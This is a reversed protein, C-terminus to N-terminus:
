SIAVTDRLRLTKYNFLLIKQTSVNHLKEKFTVSLNFIQSPMVSKKEKQSIFATAKLVINSDM